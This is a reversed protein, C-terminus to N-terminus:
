TDRDGGRSIVATESTLLTESDSALIAHRYLLAASLVNRSTRAVAPREDSHCASARSVVTTTKM